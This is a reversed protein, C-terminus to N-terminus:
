PSKIVELIKEGFCEIYLINADDISISSRVNGNMINLNLYTEIPDGKKVRRRRGNKL